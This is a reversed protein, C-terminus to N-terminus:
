AQTFAGWLVGKMSCRNLLALAAVWLEPNSLRYSLHGYSLIRNPSETVLTWKFTFGQWELVKSSLYLMQWHQGRGLCTYYLRHYYFQVVKNQLWFFIGQINKTINVSHIFTLLVVLWPSCLFGWAAGSLQGACMCNGNHQLFRDMWRVAWREFLTPMM